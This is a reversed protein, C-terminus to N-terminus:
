LLLNHLATTKCECIKGIVKNDLVVAYFEDSEAFSAAEKVCAERTFTEYPEFYTVKPDTLIEALDDWDEPRFKRVTLRETTFLVPM